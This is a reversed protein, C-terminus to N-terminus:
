MVAPSTATMFRPTALAIAAIVLVLFALLPLSEAGVEAQLRRYAEKM